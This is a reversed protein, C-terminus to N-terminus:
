PVIGLQKWLEEACHVAFESEKGDECVVAYLIRDLFRWSERCPIQHTPSDPPHGFRDGETEWGDEPPHQYHGMSLFRHGDEEEVQFSVHQDLPLKALLEFLSPTVNM